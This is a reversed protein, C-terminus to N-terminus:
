QNRLRVTITYSFDDGKGAGFAEQIGFFRSVRLKSDKLIRSIVVRIFILDFCRFYTSSKSPPTPLACFKRRQYFHLFGSLSLFWLGRLLFLLMIFGFLFFFWGNSLKFPNYRSPTIDFGLLHLLCFTFWWKRLWAKKKVYQAIVYGNRIVPM